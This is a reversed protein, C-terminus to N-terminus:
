GATAPTAAPEVGGTHEAGGMLDALSLEGAADLQARRLAGLRGDEAGVRGGASVQSALELLERARVKEAPRALSFGERGQGLPVELLFGARSLRELMELSAKEDLGIATSVGSVTATQGITFGRAVEVAVRVLALPDVLLPGDEPEEEVAFARFHQFMYAIQLGSLVIIWTIYVWLLFLPVLALAGYLTQASSNTVVFKFGWKGVEWVTAALIAGGAAPKLAVRSNPVTMYVFFLLVFNILVNVSAGAAQAGFSDKFKTAGAEGGLSGVWETMQEGVYFTGFLFLSGRTLTTWYQTIRRVWSRGTPARYIQNVSREIEVMFSIAAYALILLGTLGIAVFSVGRVKVVLDKLWEDLAKQQELGREGAGAGVPQETAPPKTED